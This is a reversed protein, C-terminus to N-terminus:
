EVEESGDNQMGSTHDMLQRITISRKAGQRWEPYYKSVPDDISRIAGTTVLRGIALNVISKTASMAEIRKPKKGFYWAGLQHGDKWIVVGDSHATQAASLLRALAASDVAAGTSQASARCVLALSLVTLTTVAREM